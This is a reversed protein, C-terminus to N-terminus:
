KVNYSFQVAMMERNPDTRRYFEIADTDDAEAEVFLEAFGRDLCDKRVHAILAQGYGKGQFSPSIGVDYCVLYYGGGGISFAQLYRALNSGIGLRYGFNKKPSKHDFILNYILGNKGLELSLANVESTIQAKCVAIDILLAWITVFFFKGM